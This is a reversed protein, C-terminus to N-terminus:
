FGAKITAEILGRLEDLDWAGILPNAAHRELMAEAFASNRYASVHLAYLEVIQDHDLDAGPSGIPEGCACRDWNPHLLHPANIVPETLEM